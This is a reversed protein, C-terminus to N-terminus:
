CKNDSFNPHAFEGFEKAASTDYAKAAEIEDTFAGLHILKGDVVIAARWKSHDNNRTVGKYKSATLRPLQNRVNDQNSCIRLNTKRNDLSNHNIHDVVKDPPANTIARHMLITTKHPAYVTRIAYHHNRNPKVAAWKWQSLWQYDEDDVITWRNKTLKMLKM